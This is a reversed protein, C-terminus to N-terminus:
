GADNIIKEQPQEAEMRRIAEAAAARNREGLTAGPPRSRDLSVPYLKTWGSVTSQDLVAGIDEGAARLQELRKVVLRMARDTDPVHKKKRVELWGNWPEEPIWDPLWSLRALAAAKPNSNGKPKTSPQLSTTPPQHNTTPPQIASGGTLGGTSRHTSEDTSRHTSRYTSWRKEAAVAGSVRQKALAAQAVAIERDARGNHRRGDGNISFYTDAVKRVASQEADTMARCVRYLHDYDEPLAAETAYYTDLLLGYAGHELVSLGATDRMYDGLYRRYYNM